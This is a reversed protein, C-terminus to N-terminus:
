SSLVVVPCTLTRTVGRSRQINGVVLRGLEDLDASEVRAIVDYPGATVESSVVGAVRALQEAVQAAMGVETQVLVYASLM